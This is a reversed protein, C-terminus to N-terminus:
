TLGNVTTKGIPQRSYKASVTKVQGLIRLNPVTTSCGRRAGRTIFGNGCAGGPQPTTKVCHQGPVEM